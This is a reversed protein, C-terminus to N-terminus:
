TEGGTDAVFCRGCPKAFLDAHDQRLMARYCTENRKGEYMVMGCATVDTDGKIRGYAHYTPQRPWTQFIYVHSV